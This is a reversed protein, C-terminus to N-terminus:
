PLLQGWEASVDQNCVSHLGVQVVIERAVMGTGTM